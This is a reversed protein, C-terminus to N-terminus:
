MIPFIYNKANYMHYEVHLVNYHKNQKTNSFVLYVGKLFFHFYSYSYFFIIFIFIFMFIFISSFIFIFMFISIFFLFLFSTSYYTLYFIYHAFIFFLLFTCFFNNPLWYFTIYLINFPRLFMLFQYKAGFILLQHSFLQPRVRRENRWPDFNAYHTDM